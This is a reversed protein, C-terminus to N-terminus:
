HGRADSVVDWDRTEDRHEAMYNPLLNQTFTSSKSWCKKILNLVLSRAAYMVQRVNAPLTGNDSAMMYARKMVSWAAKKITLEKEKAARRERLRRIAEGDLYDRNGEREARSKGARFSKAVKGLM